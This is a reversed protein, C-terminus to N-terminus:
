RCVESRDLNEQQTRWLVQLWIWSPYPLLAEEAVLPTVGIQLTAGSLGAERETNLWHGQQLLRPDGMDLM